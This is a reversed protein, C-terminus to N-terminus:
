SVESSDEIASFVRATVEDISGTADVHHLIGRGAYYSVLPLTKETYVEIRHRITAETDDDRGSQEGRAALRAILEEQPIDLLVVAQLTIGHRRAAEYAAEAQTVTRPFGDLVFGGSEDPGLVRDLVMAIVLDDAILDGRGMAEQAARGLETGAEVQARLLEGSSLHPVGLRAALRHGQTGKGSGPPGLM